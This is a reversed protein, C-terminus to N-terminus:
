LLYAIIQLILLAYVGAIVDDLMIGFGGGVRKDILHIPWPKWIDFLRFLVFGALLWQWGSPVLVMAVLYGVIEDWVIAPHDHVGLDKATKGCLWIGVLFLILVIGVYIPWYLTQLPLYLLVGVLTGATGPLKPACGSGCGLALFHVPHKLTSLPVRQDAM